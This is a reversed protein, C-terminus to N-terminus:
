LAAPLSPRMSNATILPSGVAIREVMRADVEVAVSHGDHFHVFYLIPNERSSCLHLDSRECVAAHSDPM